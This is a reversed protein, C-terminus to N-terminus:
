PPKATGSSNRSSGALYQRNESSSAAGRNRSQGYGFLSYQNKVYAAYYEPEALKMESYLFARSEEPKRERVDPRSAQGSVEPQEETVLRSVAPYDGPTLERLITQDREAIILPLGLKRRAAEVIREPTM